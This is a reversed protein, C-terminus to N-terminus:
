GQAGSIVRLYARWPGVEDSYQRGLVRAIQMIHDLDHAVWTALLQRLTVVGLEPHRGRRDLDADTLQMDALENLNRRRDMAFEDLLEPLTKGKSESFQASRNFKDFARSEGHDLIIRARPMWDTREGHILHGVVDFPSWTDIGEDATVWDDPLGRLLADIVVPTRQLAAVAESLVFPLGARDMEEVINAM